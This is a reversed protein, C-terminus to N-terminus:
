GCYCARYCPLSACPCSYFIGKCASKSVQQIKVLYISLDLCSAEQAEFNFVKKLQFAQSFSEGLVDLIMFQLYM